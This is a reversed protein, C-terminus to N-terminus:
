APRVPVLNAVIRRVNARTREIPTGPLGHMSV